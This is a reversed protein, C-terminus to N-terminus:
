SDKNHIRLTKSWIWQVCISCYVKLLCYVIKKAQVHVNTKQKNKMANINREEYADYTQQNWTYIM